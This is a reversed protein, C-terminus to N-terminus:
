HPINGSDNEPQNVFCGNVREQWFSKLNNLIYNMIMGKMKM